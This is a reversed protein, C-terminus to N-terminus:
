GSASSAQSSAAWTRPLPSSTARSRPQPSAPAPPPRTTTAASSSRRPTRWGSRCPARRKPWSRTEPPTTRSSRAGQQRQALRRRATEARHASQDSWPRRRPWGARPDVAVALVGELRRRLPPLIRGAADRRQGRAPEAPGGPGLRERRARARDDDERDAREGREVGRAHVSWPGLPRRRACGAPLHADSLHHGCWRRHRGAERRAAARPRAASRGPSRGPARDAADLPRTLRAPDQPHRSRGILHGPRCLAAGHERGRTARAHQDRRRGSREM